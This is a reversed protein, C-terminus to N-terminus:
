FATSMTICLILFGIVVVGVLIKNGLRQLIDKVHRLQSIQHM